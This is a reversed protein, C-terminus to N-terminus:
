EQDGASPHAPTWARHVNPPWARTVRLAAGEEYIYGGGRAAIDSANILLRPVCRARFDAPPDIAAIVAPYEGGAGDFLALSEGVRMRLVRAVHSAAEDPLRLRAQAVLPSPLFVRTM